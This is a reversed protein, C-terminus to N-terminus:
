RLTCRDGKPFLVYSTIPYDVEERWGVAKGNVHISGQDFWRKIEGNSAPGVREKSFNPFQKLFEFHTM